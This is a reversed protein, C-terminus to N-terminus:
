MQIGSTQRIQGFSGLVATKKRFILKELSYRQLPARVSDGASLIGRPCFGRLKTLLSLIGAIKMPLQVFDGCDQYILIIINKLTLKLFLVLLALISLFARNMAYCILNTATIPNPLHMKLTEITCLAECLCENIRLGIAAFQTM